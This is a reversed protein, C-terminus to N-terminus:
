QGGCDELRLVGTKMPRGLPWYKCLVQIGARIKRNKKNCFLAPNKSLSSISIHSVSILLGQTKIDLYHM